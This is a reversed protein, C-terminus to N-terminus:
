KNQEPKRDDFTIVFDNQELAELSWEQEQIYMVEEPINRIPISDIFRRDYFRLKLTEGKNMRKIMRPTLRLATDNDRKQGHPPVLYKEPTLKLFHIPKNGWDFVYVDNRTNNVVTIPQVDGKGWACLSFITLLLSTLLKKM